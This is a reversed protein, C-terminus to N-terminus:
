CVGMVIMSCVVCVYAWMCECSSVVRGMLVQMLATCTYCSIWVCLPSRVMIRSQWFLVIGINIRDTKRNTPEDLVSTRYAIEVLLWVANVNTLSVTPRRLIIELSKPSPGIMIRAGGDCWFDGEVWAKTWSFSIEFVFIQIKGFDTWSM